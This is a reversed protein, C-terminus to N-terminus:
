RQATAMPRPPSLPWKGWSHPGPRGCPTTSCTSATSGTMFRRLITQSGSNWCTSTSTSTIFSPALIRDRPDVALSALRPLFGDVRSTDPLPFLVYALEGGGTAPPFPDDPAVPHRPAESFPLKLVAVAAHGLGQGPNNVAGLLVEEQGDHDLDHLVCQYIAGPHWYEELPKGTRPDLLAVQSPYWIAHNAVTLLRLAGHVRVSRLFNGRYTPAFTRDGFTKSVGYHYQWRLRGRHDFCLLSGGKATINAPLYNVLM